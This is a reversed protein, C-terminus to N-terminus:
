RHEAFTVEVGLRCCAVRFANLRRVFRAMLSCWIVRVDGPEVTDLEGDADEGRSIYRFERTLRGDADYPYSVKVDSSTGGGRGGTEKQHELVQTRLGDPRLTYTYSSILLSSNDRVEELTLPSLSSKRICERGREVERPTKPERAGQM